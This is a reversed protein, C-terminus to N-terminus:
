GVMAALDVKDAFYRLAQIHENPSHLGSGMTDLSLHTAGALRWREIEEEWRNPYGNQYEIRADIGVEAQERGAEVIYQELRDIAVKTEDLPLDNPLWGDGLRAVRRLASDSHGGIWIPITEQIPLPNIGGDPIRHWQGEFDVLPQSWLNRLVNIQEEMRRARNEFKEGQAVYEAENWGLGIGLRLKGHCFVDLCAAQKAVLTTQRQPLILVRTLYGIRKTVGAMYSFL